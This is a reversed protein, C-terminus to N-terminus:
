NIEASLPEWILNMGWQKSTSYPVSGTTIFTCDLYIWTQCQQVSICSVIGANTPKEKLDKQRSWLLQSRWLGVRWKRGAYLHGAQCLGSISTGGAALAIPGHVQTQLGRGGVATGLVQSGGMTLYGPPAEGPHLPTQQLPVHLDHYMLTGSGLIGIYCSRLFLIYLRVACMTDQCGQHRCVM